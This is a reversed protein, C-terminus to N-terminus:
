RTRDGLKDLVAALEPPLPANASFEIGSEPWTFSVQHAHLFMRTLGLERMKANFEADGYKEDGALPYGAHAAHVRIQHTRGTELGVEVLTARKGFFQVPRFVSAAEKGSADAKVTREGGVRIDTRLPVDIRKKGLEWKGKVLALYSKEVQGERLLAHLTRLAAPKRTVLLIGSTERDLRHALELEEGPRAARLAEIVGFSVGSGGHVAVGAPKDIVLLRPEERIIAGTVAGVMAPSARRPPAAAGVRVPPVRVIDSAQLRTEPKARKGNIRVEGKRIVRFVHSKPVDALIRGLFNDLRQGAGREGVEVQRVEAAAPPKNPAAQPAPAV